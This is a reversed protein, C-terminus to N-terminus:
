RLFPCLRNRPSSLSDAGHSLRHSQGYYGIFARGLGQYTEEAALADLAEVPVRIDRRGPDESPVGEPAPALDEHVLVIELSSALEERVL